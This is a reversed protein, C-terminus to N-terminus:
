EVLTNGAAHSAVSLMKRHPSLGRLVRTAPIESTRRQTLLNFADWLAVFDAEADAFSFSLTECDLPRVGENKAGTVKRRLGPLKRLFTWM